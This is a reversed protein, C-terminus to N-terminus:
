KRQLLQMEEQVSIGIQLAENFLRGYEGAQESFQLFELPDLNVTFSSSSFNPNERFTKEIKLACILDARVVTLAEIVKEKNELRKAGGSRGAEELADVGEILSNYNKIERDLKILHKFQHYHRPIWWNKVVYRVILFCVAIVLFWVIVVPLELSMTDGLLLFVLFNAPVLSLLGFFLYGSIQQNNRDTAMDYEAEELNSARLIEELKIQLSLLNSQSMMM